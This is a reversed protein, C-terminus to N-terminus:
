SGATWRNIRCPSGAAGSSGGYGTFNEKVEEADTSETNNKNNYRNERGNESSELTNEPVTDSNLPVPEPPLQVDKKCKAPGLNATEAEGILVPTSGLFRTPSAAAVCIIM